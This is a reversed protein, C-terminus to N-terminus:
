QLLQIAIDLAKVIIGGLFGYLLKNSKFDYEIQSAKEEKKLEAMSVEQQNNLLSLLTTTMQETLFENQEQLRQKLGGNSLHEVNEDIRDVKKFLNQLKVELSTIRGEQHCDTGNDYNESNKSM